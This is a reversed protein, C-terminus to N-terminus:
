PLVILCVGAIRCSLQGTHPNGRSSTHQPFRHGGPAGRPRAPPEAPNTKREVGPPPSAPVRATSHAQDEEPWQDETSRSESNKSYSNFTFISPKSFRPKKPTPLPGTSFRTPHTLVAATPPILWLPPEPTITYYGLEPRRDALVCSFMVDEYGQGMSSDQIGKCTYGMSVMLEPRGPDESDPLVSEVSPM